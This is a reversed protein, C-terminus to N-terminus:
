YKALRGADSSNKERLVYSRPLKDVWTVGRLKKYGAVRANVFDLLEQTRQQEPRDAAESKCVVVAWPLENQTVHDHIKGVVAVDFVFPLKTVEEELTSAAVQYGNYKIIDKFRDHLRVFGTNTMYLVVRVKSM